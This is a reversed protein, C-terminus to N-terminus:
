PQTGRGKMVHKRLGPIHVNAIYDKWNINKVNFQFTEREEESMEDILENTNTNEFRCKEL